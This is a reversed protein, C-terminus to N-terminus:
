NTSGIPFAIARTQTTRTDAGTQTDIWMAGDYIRVYVIRCKRTTAETDAGGFDAITKGFANLAQVKMRQAFGRRVVQGLHKLGKFVLESMQQRLGFPNIHPAAVQHCSLTIVCSVEYLQEFTKTAAIRMQSHYKLRATGKHPAGSVKNATDNIYHTMVIDIGCNHVYGQM